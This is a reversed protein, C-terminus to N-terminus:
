KERRGTKLGALLRRWARQEREPRFKPALRRGHRDLAALFKPDRECRDLVRALARENGVPYYGPHDGGLLGVSGVIRSAVVPLGAAVAESIVNAGGESTSSLVMLRCKGMAKRVRWHPVEGKWHYRPNARMEDRGRKAWNADHAQGFHLIRIASDAPLLRAALATRLPDKEDRLHGVVCVDFFRRSPQERRALPVASQHIVHLKRHLRKPLNRHVLDHLCVLRDAADMTALTEKRHTNQFVYIDTGGLGVILKREPYLERFRMAAGASRWAHLAVMLDAPEDDYEVAVRVRHGLARLLSAWREATARNGARSRKPAPTILSIKM